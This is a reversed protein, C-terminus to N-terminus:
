KTTTSYININTFTPKTNAIIVISEEFKGYSLSKLQLRISDTQQPLIVRKKNEMVMCQCSPQVNSIELNEDGSNKIKIYFAKSTNIPINGLSISPTLVEMKSYNNSQCGLLCLFLLAISFLPELKKM